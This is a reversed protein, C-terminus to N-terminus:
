AKALRDFSHITNPFMKLSVDQINIRPLPLHARPAPSVATVRSTSIWTDLTQIRDFKGDYAKESETVVCAGPWPHWPAVWWWWCGPGPVPCVFSHCSGENWHERENCKTETKAKIALTQVIITAPPQYCHDDRGRTQILSLYKASDTDLQWLAVSRGAAVSRAVAREISTIISDSCCCCIGDGWRASIQVCLPTLLNTAPAPGPTDGSQAIPPITSSVTCMAAFRGGEWGVRSGGVGCWEGEGILIMCNQNQYKCVIGGHKQTM